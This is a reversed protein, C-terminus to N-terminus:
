HRDQIPFDLVPTHPPTVNSRSYLPIIESTYVKSICGLIFKVEKAKRAGQKKNVMSGLCNETFNGELWRGTVQALAHKKKKKEM